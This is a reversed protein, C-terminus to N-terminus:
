VTYRQHYEGISRCKNNNNNNYKLLQRVCAFIRVSVLFQFPVGNVACLCRTSYPSSLALRVSGFRASGIEAKRENQKSFTFKNYNFKMHIEMTKTSNPTKKRIPMERGLWVCWVWAIQRKLYARHVWHKAFSRDFMFSKNKKLEHSVSCAFSQQKQHTRPMFHDNHMEDYSCPLASSRWM